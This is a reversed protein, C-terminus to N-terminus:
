HSHWGLQEKRTLYLLGLIRMTVTLLYLNVFGWFIKAGFSALLMAVSRTLMVNAPFLLKIIFDGLAWAGFVSGLLVVTVAYELPVKFISPVVVLPNAAAASDLTAVALFAMPFYLCGFLATSVLATSSASDGRSIAWIAVGAMPAFSTLCVGLLRFFPLLIDDLISSMGPLDPMERDGSATSHVIAQLYTFLYGGVCVQGILGGAVLRLSGTRIILYTINMGALLIMGVIMVLVGGGLFPYVFAGPLRAFFGAEVPREIRVQLATLEAGCHRCFKRPVGGAKRSTVCLECFSQRCHNCFFRGQTKPHHKCNQPVSAAALATEPPPAVPPPRTIETGPMPPPQSPLRVPSSEARVAVPVQNGQLKVVPKLLPARGAEEERHAAPASTLAGIPGLEAGVPQSPNPLAVRIPSPAPAEAQFLLELSGLHVTQGPTLAAERVPQRNIFTGNTSGLDRILASGGEVVIECHSGSVSLDDLRVDNSSGRGVFNIGQKLEVQRANPSGPQIVLRVM